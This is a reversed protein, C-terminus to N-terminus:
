LGLDNASIVELSESTGAAPEVTLDETGQPSPCRGNHDLSKALFAICEPTLQEGSIGSLCHQILIWADPAVPLDRDHSSSDPETGRDQTRFESSSM